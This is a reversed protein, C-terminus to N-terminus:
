LYIYLTSGDEEGRLIREKGVEGMGQDGWVIGRKCEHGKIIIIIVM